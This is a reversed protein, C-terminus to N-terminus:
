IGQLIEEVEWAGTWYRVQCRLGREDGETEIRKKLGGFTRAIVMDQSRLRLAPCFDNSGDGIYVIRDYAHGKRELYADLEEGKCMNPSCGIKCSHQPGSPDIRRKVELLGDEKWEAPNTVITEFIHQLSRAELITSIFVSNANSLCFFTTEGKAKLANVARVM